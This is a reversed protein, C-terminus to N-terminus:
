RSQWHEAMARIMPMPSGSSVAPSNIPGHNSIVQADATASATGNFEPNLTTANATVTLGGLSVGASFSDRINVQASALGGAGSYSLLDFPGINNSSTLVSGNSAFDTLDARVTAINGVTVGFRGFINASAEAFALGSESGLEVTNATVTVGHHMNVSGDDASASLVAKSIVVGSETGGFGSPHGHFATANVTASGGVNVGESGILRGRADAIVSEASTVNTLAEVTFNGDVEVHSGNLSGFAAGFANFKVANGQVNAMDMDGTVTVGSHAEIVANALVIEDSPVPFPGQPTGFEGFKGTLQLTGDVTM